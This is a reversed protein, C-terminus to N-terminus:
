QEGCRPGFALLLVTATMLLTTPRSIMSLLPLGV